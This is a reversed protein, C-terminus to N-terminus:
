GFRGSRAGDSRGKKAVCRRMVGAGCRFLVAASNRWVPGSNHIVALPGAGLLLISRHRTWAREWGGQLCLREGDALGSCGAQGAPTGAGEIQGAGAVTYTGGRGHLDSEENPCAPECERGSGDYAVERGGREPTEGKRQTEFGVSHDM